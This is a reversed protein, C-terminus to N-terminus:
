RSWPAMSVCYRLVASLWICTLPTEPNLLMFYHLSIWIEEVHKEYDEHEQEIVKLYKYVEEYKDKTEQNHAVDIGKKAIEEAKIIEVNVLKSFNVFEREAKILENHKKTEAFRLAREYWIAQELQHLTLSTVVKTLPIDNHAIETIEKGIVNLKMIGITAIVILLILIFGALGLIKIKVSLNKINM